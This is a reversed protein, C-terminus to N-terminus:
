SGAHTKRRQLDVAPVIPDHPGTRSRPLSDPDAAEPVASHPATSIPPASDPTEGHRASAASDRQLPSTDLGGEDFWAVWPRRESAADDYASPETALVLIARREAEVNLLHLLRRQEYPPIALLPDDLVLLRPAMSACRLVELQRREHAHLDCLAVDLHRLLDPFGALEIFQVLSPLLAGKSPIQRIHLGHLLYERATLMLWRAERPPSLPMSSRDVLLDRGEYLASGQMTMQPGLPGCLVRLLLRRQAENHCVLVHLGRPAIDLSLPPLLPRGQLQVTLNRLQLLATGGAASADLTPLSSQKPSGAPLPPLVSTVQEIDNAVTDVLLSAPAPPSPLVAAQRHGADTHGSTATLKAPLSPPEASLWHCTAQCLQADSERATAILIARRSSEHQLLRTLAAVHPPSMAEFPEDLCLLKPESFLERVVALLWWEGASLLLPAQGLPSDLFPALHGLGAQTLHQQLAVRPVVRAVEPLLDQLLYRALPLTSLAVAPGLVAPRATRGLQDGDFHIEGSLHWGSAARNRGSLVGLLASLSAREPSLLAHVGRRPITLSVASLLTQRDHTASFSTLVLLPQTALGPDERLGAAQLSAPREAGPQPQSRAEPRADLATPLRAEAAVQAALPESSPAALVVVAAAARVERAPAAVQEVPPPPPSPGPPSLVATAVPQASEKTATEVPAHVPPAPEQPALTTDNTGTAATADKTGTAETPDSPPLPATPEAPLPPAIAPSAAATSAASSSSAPSASQSEVIPVVAPLPIAPSAASKGDSVPSAFTGLRVSDSSEGRAPAESEAASPKKNLVPEAGTTAPDATPPALAVGAALLWESAEDTGSAAASREGILTHKSPPTHGSPAAAILSFQGTNRVPAPPLDQQSISAAASGPSQTSQQVHPAPTLKSSSALGELSKYLRDLQNNQYVLLTVYRESSVVYYSHIATSGLAASSVGGSEESPLRLLHQVLGQGLLGFQAVTNAKREALRTTMIPWPGDPGDIQWEFLWREEATAPPTEYLRAAVDTYRVTGQRGASLLLEVVSFYYREGQLRIESTPSEAIRIKGLDCLESIRRLARATVGCLCRRAILPINHLQLGESINLAQGLLLKQLTPAVPAGERFFAEDIFTHGDVEAGIGVMGADISIRGVQRDRSDFFTLARVRPSAAVREIVLLLM